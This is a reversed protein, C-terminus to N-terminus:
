RLRRSVSRGSDFTNGWSSYVYVGFHGNDLLDRFNGSGIPPTSPTILTYGVEYNRNKNNIKVCWAYQLGGGNSWDYNRQPKIPFTFIAEDKGVVVQFKGISSTDRGGKPKQAEVKNPAALFLVVMVAALIFLTKM